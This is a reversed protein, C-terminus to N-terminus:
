MPLAWADDADLLRAAGAGEVSELSSISSADDDM